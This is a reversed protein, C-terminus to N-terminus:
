DAGAIVHHYGNGEAEGVIAFRASTTWKRVRQIGPYYRYGGEHAWEGRVVPFGMRRGEEYARRIADPKEVEVTFYLLGDARLSGRFGEMIRPWDEPPAYEMADMCMIGDFAGEEDLDRLDKKRASVDPFKAQARALMGVSRDIGVVRFRRELLIPWYKGTGCAADLILGEDPCRDLFRDLMERHIPDIAGWEEDYTPSHLGDMREEGERRKQSLWQDRRV